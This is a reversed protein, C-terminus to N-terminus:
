RRFFTSARRNGIRSQLFLVLSFARRGLHRLRSTPPLTDFKKQLLDRLRAVSRGATAEFRYDSAGLSLGENSTPESLFCDRRDVHFVVISEYFSISSVFQNLPNSSAEVGPFRSNIADVTHFAFRLFSHRSPNGFQTMYSAHTDEVIVMGGDNIMPAVSSVTQIQQINSHGGDDLLVDITGVSATFTRWFAPDAQNGIWIEFGDDEWRKAAPNLDVGIIRARDGFFQRWMFLSGGNLVGVEVFTIPRGALPSLLREYVHFYSTHKISLFPSKEYASYVRLGEVQLSEQSKKVLSVVCRAQTTEKMLDLLNRQSRETWCSAAVSTM